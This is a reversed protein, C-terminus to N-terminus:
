PHHAALEACLAESGDQSNDDMVIIEYNREGLAEQIMESLPKLNEVEKYTPVIISIM